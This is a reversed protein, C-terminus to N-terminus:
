AGAMETWIDEIQSVKDEILYREFVERKAALGFSERLTPDSALRGIRDVLASTDRPPVLFGNEGDTIIERLGGVASAVVPLGLAMAELVSRGFGEALSPHIMIDMTCLLSLADTRWGVFRVNDALGDREVIKELEGRYFAYEALVSDGAVFLVFGPHADVIQRLGEFLYHHGKPPYVQGLVIANIRDPTIDLEGRLATKDASEAAAVASPDIGIRVIGIKKRFFRVFYPYRDDRNTECFFLIRDALFFGIRDLIPNDLEGKVYWAVPVGALRAGLGALLLSRISNCYVVGIGRRRILTSLRWNYRLLDLASRLRALLSDNLVRGGFRHISAPPTEVLVEIEDDRFRALFESEDPSVVIPNFRTRDLFELMYSLTRLNGGGKGMPYPEYILVNVMGKTLSRFRGLLM